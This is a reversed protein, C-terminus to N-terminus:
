VVKVTAGRLGRGVGTRRVDRVEATGHGGHAGCIGRVRDLQQAYDGRYDWKADQTDLYSIPDDTRNNKRWAMCRNLFSHHARRLMELQCARPSSMVCRQRSHRPEECGPKSRSPLAQDTTCNLLASGSAAGDAAHAGTSTGESTYSSTRKATFSAPGKCQIHPPPSRCGRRTYVRSRLRTTRFPWALRRACSWSLAWWKGRSSPRNRSLEPM